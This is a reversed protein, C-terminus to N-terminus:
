ETKPKQGSDHTLADDVKFMKLKKETDVLTIMKFHMVGIVLPM